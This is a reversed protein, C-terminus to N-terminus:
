VARRQKITAPRDALWADLADIQQASMRLGLKSRRWVIDEASRAFEKEVLWTVEQATLDAGFSLGLDEAKAADGLM